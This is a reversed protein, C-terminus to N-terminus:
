SGDLGVIPILSKSMTQTRKMYKRVLKSTHKGIRPQMCELPTELKVQM